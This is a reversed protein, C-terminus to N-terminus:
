TRLAQVPTEVEVPKEEWEEIAERLDKERRKRLPTISELLRVINKKNKM